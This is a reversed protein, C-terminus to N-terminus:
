SVGCVGEAGNGPRKAITKRRRQWGQGPDAVTTGRDAMTGWPDRWREAAPGRGGTRPPVGPAGCGLVPLQPAEEARRRRERGTAGVWHAKM